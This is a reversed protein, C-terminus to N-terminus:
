FGFSFGAILYTKDAQPAVIAQVFLPLSFKNTIEIEKSAKLAIDTFAASQTHYMGKWPTFGVSPTLTVDFPCSIDYAAYIYTSFARDGDINNDSSAFMTSWSVFLPIKEGFHYSLTGEFHHKNAYYGYPAHMGEWWYDTVTIGFGHINYSLSVDFEQPADKANTISQSGWATATIGKYSLGLTPQISFGSNQYIGRWVYDSVFDAKGTVDLKEQANVLSSTTLIATAAIIIAKFQKKM